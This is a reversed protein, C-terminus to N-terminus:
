LSGGKDFIMNSIAAGAPVMPFVNAEQEVLFELLVPKTKSKGAEKLAPKIEEPKTVRIGIAGYAEALKVFDPTYLRCEESPDSCGKPCDIGQTLCTSSYREKYFLEQWQRVMGLYGNNLIVVIVPLKNLVATALEQINMQISGDGAIDIVVKDPNGLKAGIAAPFGYGMTGLGGSTLFSRSNRFKYYLATWMQNQGVETSIIAEPFVESVAQVVLEPLLRKGAGVKGSLGPLPHETRWTEIQELWDKNEFPELLPFLQELVQGADGVIPIQVEVNRAISSTDIDIHVIKAEPAFQSLDGTARDDFRTGIAFLLDSHTVAMNATYTGHMGLMGLFLPNESPLSGIGMLSSIVPVGTKKVTKRFIDAADSIHIGGGVYFLPKKARNLAAAARKIQVPHGKTVPNYGRITVSEPYNPDGLEKTVDAPLDVVVPGPRGSSALTFAEKLMRGLDKRDLVLYNHKTVPRTLGMTDAEQFADNGIMHRAVQGTLCVIPVSDFNATALGTVTNTAGPGSTVLCVGTKGTSRAYGDAAHVAGQEHRTLIVKIEPASYLADFIPIVVGGPFGFLHTVGEKKLAEVLLDAGSINM